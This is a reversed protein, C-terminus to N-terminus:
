ETGAQYSYLWDLRGLHGKPGQAGIVADRAAALPWSMHFIRGNKESLKQVRAVREMRLAAYREFAHTPNPSAVLLPALTAADEIAMAAGQAQFPLMAHAADGIVGVSGSHWRETKVTSLVWPTWHEGVADLVARLRRNRGAKLKPINGSTAADLNRHAQNVFLALNVANRHPLPYVVLHFRKGLMLSTRSLDFTQELAAMPVLARWAVKGSYDAEPGGLQQIRTQSHVGDAGIFAFPKSRRTKGDPENATVSLGKGDTKIAISHVGTVIDINAFKKAATHLVNALDGRHMVAYPAGYREVMAEGLELTQIPASRTGSFVDIGAPEYSAAAIAEDLGLQNLAHRANPSIQLGAGFESIEAARELVVVRAGFKALGLALTLGAIGAGAIFFTRPASM